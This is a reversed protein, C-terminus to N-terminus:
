QDSGYREGGDVTIHEGTIYDSEVLFLVARSVDQPSGWRKLLTRAAIREKTEESYHTPSLVPGPAVANVRVTPALDVALQRTLALLAAKGVSHAAFGRRPQWAMLDVINIIVGDGATQMTPAVANACQFAGHVLTGTVRQWNTLDDTPLPTKRFFSAANILIGVPGLDREAHAVMDTVQTSDSVDAHLPLARVGLAEAESATASAAKASSHYNIAVNAGARALALTVAKGVRHAGGTILATKGAPNM